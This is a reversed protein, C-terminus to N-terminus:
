SFRKNTQLSIGAGGFGGMWRTLLPLKFAALGEDRVVSALFMYGLRELLGAQALQQM